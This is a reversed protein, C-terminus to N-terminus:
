WSDRLAWYEAEKVMFEAFIYIERYLCENGPLGKIFMEVARMRKLHDSAWAPDGWERQAELVMRSQVYLPQVGVEGGRWRKETAQYLALSAAYRAQAAKNLQRWREVTRLGVFLIVAAAAV